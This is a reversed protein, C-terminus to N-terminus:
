PRLIVNGAPAETDAPVPQSKEDGGAAIRARWGQAVAVIEGLRSELAGATLGAAPLSTMLLVTRTNRDVGITSGGTGRWFVNADLLATLLGPPAEEDLTALPAAVVLRDEGDIFSLELTLDGDVTLVCDGAGDLALDPIGVLRGLDQVLPRVQEIDVIVGKSQPGVPDGRDPRGHEARRIPSATAEPARVLGESRLSRRM